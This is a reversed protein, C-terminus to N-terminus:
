KIFYGSVHWKGDQDLLPTVTEVATAKHEFVTDFQVIVYHGDPAGPASTTYTAAKLKRSKVKGLPSRVAAAMQSWKDKSVAAQFLSASTDWSPGYRGADVHALWALAAKEAAKKMAAQDPRDAQAPNADSSAPLALVSALLIWSASRRM